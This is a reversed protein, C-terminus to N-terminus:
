PLGVFAQSCESCYPQYQHFVSVVFVHSFVRGIVGHLAMQQSGSVNAANGVLGAYAGGLFEPLIEDDVGTGYTADHAFGCHRGVIM